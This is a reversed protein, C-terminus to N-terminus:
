ISERAFATGCTEADSRNMANSQLRLRTAQLRSAAASVAAAVTVSWIAALTSLIREPEFGASGRGQARQRRQAGAGEQDPVSRSGGPEDGGPARSDDGGTTLGLDRAKIQAGADDVGRARDRSGTRARKGPFPHQMLRERATEDFGSM